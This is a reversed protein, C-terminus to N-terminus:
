VDLLFRGGVNALPRGIQNDLVYGCDGASKAAPSIM